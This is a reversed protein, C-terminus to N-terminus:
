QWPFAEIVKSNVLISSPIDANTLGLSKARALNFIKLGSDIKFGIGSPKKGELLIDFALKGVQYGQIQPYPV